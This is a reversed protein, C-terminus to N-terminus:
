KLEELKGGGMEPAARGSRVGGLADVGGWRGGRGVPRAWAAMVGIAVSSAQWGADASREGFNM